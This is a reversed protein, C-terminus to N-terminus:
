KGNKRLAIASWEGFQSGDDLIVIVEEKQNLLTNPLHLATWDLVVPLSILKGSQMKLLQRGGLPGSRYFLKQGQNYKISISGRDVDSQIYSGYIIFNDNITKQYDGGLWNGTNVLSNVTVVDKLQLLSGSAAEKLPPLFTLIGCDGGNVDIAIVQGLYRKPIYGKFGSLKYNQGYVKAVDGRWSGTLARGVIANQTNVFNLVSPISKRKADFFWGSIKLYEPEDVLEEIGDISGKCDNQIKEINMGLSQSKEISEYGNKSFVSLGLDSSKKGIELAYKPDPFINKIQNADNVQLSIALAAIKQEFVL